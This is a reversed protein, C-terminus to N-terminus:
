DQEQYWHQETPGSDLNDSHAPREEILEDSPVTHFSLVGWDESGVLWRHWTNPPITAWQSDISSSRDDGLSYTKWDGNERVQFQGSGAIALSRQHSNPHRKSGTEQSARLVFVWCSQISSPLANFLDLPVTEWAMIRDSAHLAATTRRLSDTIFRRLEPSQVEADLSLVVEDLSARL